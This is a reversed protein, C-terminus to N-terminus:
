LNFFFFFFFFHVFVTIVLPLLPLLQQMWIHAVVSLGMVNIGTAYRVNRSRSRRKTKNKLGGANCVSSLFLSFSLSAFPPAEEASRACMYEAMWKGRRMKRLGPINGMRCLNRCFFFFFFFSRKDISIPRSQEFTEQRMYVVSLVEMHMRMHFNERSMTRGRCGDDSFM